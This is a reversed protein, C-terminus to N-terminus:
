RWRDVNRPVRLVYYHLLNANSCVTDAAPQTLPVDRSLDLLTSGYCEITDDIEQKM